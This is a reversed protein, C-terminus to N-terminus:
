KFSYILDSCNGCVFVNTCFSSLSNKNVQQALLGRSTSILTTPLMLPFTWTKTQSDSFSDLNSLYFPTLCMNALVSTKRQGSFKQFQIIYINLQIFVPHTHPKIFSPSQPVWPSGGGREEGCIQGWNKITNRLCLKSFVTSELTTILGLHKREM